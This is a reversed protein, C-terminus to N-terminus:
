DQKLYTLFSTGQEIGAGWLFLLIYDEATGFVEQNLYYSTIGTLIGIAMAALTSIVDNIRTSTSIQTSTSQAILIPEQLKVEFSQDKYWLEVRAKLSGKLPSFQRIKPECSVTSLKKEKEPKQKLYRWYKLLEWWKIKDEQIDISWHYKIGHKFLYNDGVDPNLPEIEFNIGQFTEFPDGSNRPNIFEIKNAVSAQKLREWNLSDIKQLVDEVDKYELYTQYIEKYAGNTERRNEWLVKLVAYAEERKDSRKDMAEDYLVQIETDKKDFQDIDFRDMFLQIDIDLDENYKEKFVELSVFWSELETIKKDMKEINAENFEIQSLTVLLRDYNKMVRNRHMGHPRKEIKNYIETTRQLFKTIQEATALDYNCEEFKSFSKKSIEEAMKIIRKVRIKAMNYPIQDSLSNNIKQARKRIAIRSDRIAVFKKTVLTFIIAGVIVAVAWGWHDKRTINITLVPANAFSANSATFALKLTRKGVKINKLEMTILFYEGEEMYIVGADNDASMLDIREDMNNKTILDDKVDIPYEADDAIIQARLNYIPSKLSDEFVIFSFSESSYATSINIQDRNLKIIAPRYNRLRQISLPLAGIKQVGQSILLFGRYVDDVELRGVNIGFRIYRENIVLISDEFDRNDKSLKFYRVVNDKNHFPSLQFTVSDPIRRDSELVINVITDRLVSIMPGTTEQGNVEFISYPLNDGQALCVDVSISSLLVFYILLYHHFRM